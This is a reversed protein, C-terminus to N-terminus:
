VVESKIGLDKCLSLVDGVPEETVCPHDVTISISAEGTEELTSVCSLMQYNSAIHQLGWKLVDIRKM